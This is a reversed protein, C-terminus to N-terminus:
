RSIRRMAHEAAPGILHRTRLEIQETRTETRRSTAVLEALLEALASVDDHQQGCNPCRYVVGAATLSTQTGDEVWASAAVSALPSEMGAATVTERNVQFGPTNVALLGIMELPGTRHPITRWDGSVGGGSLVALQAPTVDPRVRGSMWIGFMGDSLRVDAWAMGTHAYHDVADPARMAAAAHNTAMTVPGTAVREGGDCEVTGRHFHAYGSPSTPATVCADPYGIHCQGWRAAHGFVRGDSAITLPVAVGGDGQEVLLEESPMGYLDLRGFNEPDPEPIHFWDALVHDPLETLAADARVVESEDDAPEVAETPEDEVTETDAGVLEIFAGSFAPVAVATAGRLRLRTMRSIVQDSADEMVLVRGDTDDPDGASALMRGSGSATLLLEDDDEEGTDAAWVEIQWNDPDISVGQRTGHSATGDALRRVLEAGDENGDDIQGEGMVTDGDRWVRDITGVQPADTITDVHQDGAIRYALPLQGEDWEIAGPAIIRGDGTETNEIALPGRWASM